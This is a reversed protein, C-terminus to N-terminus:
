IWVELKYYDFGSEARKRYRTLLRNNNLPCAESSVALGFIMSSDEQNKVYIELQMLAERPM